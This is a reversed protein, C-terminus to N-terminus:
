LGYVASVAEVAWLFANLSRGPAAFILSDDAFLLESIKLQEMFVGEFEAGYLKRSMIRKLPDVQEFVRIMTLIFLYPSLPCGQRIGSSQKCRESEVGDIEVKFM